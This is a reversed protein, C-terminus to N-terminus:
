IVEERPLAFKNKARLITFENEYCEASGIKSEAEQFWSVAELIHSPECCIVSARVPDLINASLPWVASSHPPAYRDFSVNLDFSM